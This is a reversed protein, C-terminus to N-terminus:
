HKSLSRRGLESTHFVIRFSPAISKLAKRALVFKVYSNTFHIPVEVPCGDFFEPDSLFSSARQEKWQQWKRTRQVSLPQVEEAFRLWCRIGAVLKGSHTKV